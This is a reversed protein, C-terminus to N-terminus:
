FNLILGFTYTKLTPYYGYCSEPDLGYDRLLSSLTFLNQGSLYLRVRSFSYGLEVNRLKLYDGNKVWLSSTQYNNQNSQTTLRPYTASKRTDIGETPYYAWAGQAIPYVNGNDVFAVTQNWNDLLNVSCAAVGQFLASFDLKKWRLLLGASYSWEPYVSEGVATVDNQDVIGNKDLDRYKVDGPQVSGFAPQPLSTSLNGADDFDTIDYFGDSVLGIFTGYPRGTKANFYNAPAVESMFDITNRAYSVAGNLEFSFDGSGGYLAASLEFGKTTMRGINSFSYQKGQYAPVSNDLTLIDSRKDLFADASFRFHGFLDADLGANYKLAKEAHAYPNAKFMPVLTTQWTGATGGMYFAGIYSYSYYDKFLYRGNSSYDSLVSTANSDSAGSMGASARLRLLRIAQSNRLFSENSVMWAASATPYFTWQKGPAYADNGFYSFMVDFMYRDDYGYSLLGNWNAYHYKYSFRGDGSYASLHMGTMASIRSKGFAGDYALKVRGQKWDEMGNSGYGSATITTTEDTTTREGNHYRAYNRSKSYGSATHSNFSFAEELYLGELLDDLREKIVFNGQLNRYKANNWGLATISAYPNNPYVSTGSYHGASEDDYVSYVNSPYRAVDQMLQSVSYNPRNRYEIRGGLDVRVEFIRLINFDLNARLNFKQYGLNKTQDTNEVNLFSSSNVYGLDVNFRADKGGGNFIIDGDTYQGSGKFVEDYWDVNVGNGNKYASLQEESYVPSWNMGRDNSVARNYLSAYGYSDLPKNISSPTQLGSRLRVKVKVPGEEGRKTKILIVGNAGREGYLAVAAADKLVSVSEIEAPTLSNLYVMNVEFGDVFIKASNYNGSGYSGVGRVLIKASNNDIEGTGQVVTLGPLLGVLANTLSTSSVKYLEEGSVTSVAAGTQAMASGAVLLGAALATINKILKMGTNPKM